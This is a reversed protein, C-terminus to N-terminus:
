QLMSQAITMYEKFYNNEFAKLEKQLEEAQRHDTDVVIALLDLNSNCKQIALDFFSRFDLDRADRQMKDYSDASINARESKLKLAAIDKEHNVVALDIVSAKCYAISWEM